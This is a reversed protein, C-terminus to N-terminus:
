NVQALPENEHLAIAFAPQDFGTRRQKCLSLIQHAHRVFYKTYYSKRLLWPQSCYNTDCTRM